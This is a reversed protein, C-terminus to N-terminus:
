NISNDIDLANKKKRRKILRYIILWGTALIIPISIIWIAMVSDGKVKFAQKFEDKVNDGYTTSLILTYAGNKLNLADFRETILQETEVTTEENKTFVTIGIADEIRYTLNVSTPVNGFSIFQTKAVLNGSKNLVANEISFVIDFLKTPATIRHPPGGLFPDAYSKMAPVAITLCIFLLIYAVKFWWVLKNKQIFAKM